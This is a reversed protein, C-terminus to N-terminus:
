AQGGVLADLADEAELEPKADLGVVFTTSSPSAVFSSRATVSRGTAPSAEFRITSQFPASPKLPKM